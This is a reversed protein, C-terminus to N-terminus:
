GMINVIDFNVGKIKNDKFLKYVKQSVILSPKGAFGAGFYETTYNIDKADKLSDKDYYPLSRLFLGSKKCCECFKEKFFISNENLLPLTNNSKLQYLVPDNKIRGNKRHHVKGFEVGTIGNEKVLNYLKESVTWLLDYTVSIDKKGMKAKDIYLDSIQTRGAGCFACKNDYSYETGYEESFESCFSNANLVLYEAENLESQTYEMEFRRFLLNVGRKKCEDHLKMYELSDTYINEVIGLEPSICGPFTINMVDKINNDNGKLYFYERRRM